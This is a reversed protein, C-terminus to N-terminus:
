SWKKDNRGRLQRAHTCAISMVFLPLFRKLYENLTVCSTKLPMCVITMSCQRFVTQPAAIMRDMIKFSLLFFFRTIKNDTIHSPCLCKKSWLLLATCLLQCVVNMQSVNSEATIKTLVSVFWFWVLCMLEFM